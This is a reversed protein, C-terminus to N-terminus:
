LAIAKYLNIQNGNFRKNISSQKPKPVPSLEGVIEFLVSMAASPSKQLEQWNHMDSTRSKIM